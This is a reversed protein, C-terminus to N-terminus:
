VSLEKMQLRMMYHLNPSHSPIFEGVKKFGAKEYVHIARSNTAEPDILVETVKPFQSLLFEKILIHSLGKGIYNQDGISMDLTITDGKSISWRTLEDDPKKVYSTILFAFPHGKDYGLWYQAQTSGNLFEDLYKFTNELGQGYFWEAIYPQTLWQHVLTRNAAEVHKFGYRFQTIM